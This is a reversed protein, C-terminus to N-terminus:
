NLGIMMGSSHAGQRLAFRAFAGSLADVQDDHPAGPFLCLEEIFTENWAARRILLNGHAAQAAVPEARIEKRGTEPEVTVSYGALMSVFDAAQVKGAQAPDKPLSIKCYRGDQAAIAKILDRVEHGEKRVRIVDIVAFRRDPFRALKLGVTYDANESVAAALDWHRVFETGHPIDTGEIFQKDGFWERKFMGGARPIPRQQYQGAIAYESLESTRLKLAADDFQEPWLVANDKRPDAWIKGTKSNRVETKIPFPHGDEHWAPLCVHHWKGRPDREQTLDVHVANMERALIYGSLDSSHSRQMVVIIAGQASNLRSPLQHTFFEIVNERDNESEVQLVDHPDDFIAIDGGSGTVSGMVMAKRVGGRTNAYEAKLNQDKAFEVIKSPSQDGWRQRYWDSDIVRRCAISHSIALREAFSICLFKVGPGLWTDPQIAQQALEPKNGPNPKHVWCWAPFSIDVVSSKCHRPPFNLLLRFISQCAIAELHACLCEIHWGSKFPVSEWQPWADRTFELLSNECERTRLVRQIRAANLEHASVVNMIFQGARIRVEFIPV